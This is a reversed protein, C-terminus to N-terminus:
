WPNEIKWAKPKASILLVLPKNKKAMTLILFWIYVMNFVYPQEVFLSVM